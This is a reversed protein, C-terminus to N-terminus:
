EKKRFLPTCQFLYEMISCIEADRSNDPTYHLKFERTEKDFIGTFMYNLSSIGKTAKVEYSEMTYPDISNVLSSGYLPHYNIPTLVIAPGGTILEYGEFSLKDCDELSHSWLARIQSPEGIEDILRTNM